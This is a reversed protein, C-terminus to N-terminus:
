RQLFHEFLPLPPEIGGQRMKRRRGFVAQRSCGVFQAIAASSYGAQIMEDIRRTIKRHASRAGPPIDLHTGGYTAVLFGMAEEGVARAIPHRKGASKPVYIRLGGFAEVFRHAVEVGFNDKLQLAITSLYPKM